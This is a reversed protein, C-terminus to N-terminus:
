EIRAHAESYAEARLELLEAARRRTDGALNPRSTDDGVREVVEDPSVQLSAVVAQDIARLRLERPVLCGGGVAIVPAVAGVTELLGLLEEREASRFTAEGQESFIRTIPASF